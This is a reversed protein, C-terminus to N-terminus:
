PENWNQFPTKGIASFRRSLLPRMQGGEYQVAKRPPTTSTPTSFTMRTSWSPRAGLRRTSPIAQFQAPDLETITFEGPYLRKGLEHVKIEGAANTFAEGYDITSPAEAAEGNSTYTIHFKAHEIPEGTISNEKFITIEPAKRNRFVLTKEDNAGLTITQTRDADKDPIYYPSPVSKETVQYVGPNVRLSVTGDPGTKWDDQYTGDLAKVTLVTNPIPQQSDADIKSLTLLPKKDNSLRLEAVKGPSLEVHYETKDLIHDPM